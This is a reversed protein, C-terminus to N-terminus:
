LLGSYMSEMAQVVVYMLRMLQADWGKSPFTVGTRISSPLSNPIPHPPFVLTRSFPRALEYYADPLYVKHILIGLIITLLFSLLSFFASCAHSGNRLTTTM